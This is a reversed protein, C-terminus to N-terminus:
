KNFDKVDFVTLLKYIREKKWDRSRHQRLIKRLKWIFYRDELVRKDTSEFLSGLYVVMKSRIGMM